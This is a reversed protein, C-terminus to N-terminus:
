GFGCHTGSAAGPIRTPAGAPAGRRRNRFGCFGIEYPRQAGSGQAPRVPHALMPPIISTVSSGRFQSASIFRRTSAPRGIAAESSERRSSAYAARASSHPGGLTLAMVSVWVRCGADRGTHKM